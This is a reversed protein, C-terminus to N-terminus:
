VQAVFCGNDKSVRFVGEREIIQDIRRGVLDLLPARHSDDAPRDLIGDVGGSAYYKLAGDRTPFVFANPLLRLEATPFVSRVLALHETTFRRAEKPRVGYGLELAAAEHLRDLAAHNDASVTSLVVRGGPKVVRSLERLAREQNPVYYMMHNAMGLDCSSADLPLAEASSQVMPPAAAENAGRADRLMGMSSDIGIVRVGQAYLPRHYSGLGCGVDVVSQGPRAALQALVWDHFDVRRESFDRHM